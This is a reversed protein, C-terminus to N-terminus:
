LMALFQQETIVTVGISKAENIKKGVREGTVLYDTSGRVSNQAQGGKRHLLEIMQDRRRQMRGTFVVRKGVISGSIQSPQDPAPDAKPSPKQPQTELHPRERLAAVLLSETQEAVLPKGAASRQDILQCAASLEQDPLNTAKLAGMLVGEIVVIPSRMTAQEGLGNNM